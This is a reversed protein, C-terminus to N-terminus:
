FPLAGQIPFSGGSGEAELRLLIKKLPLGGGFGGLDGKALVRHCPVILPIPNAGCAVGVARVAGLDDLERAVDGYTRTEGYPIAVLEQWVRKQFETGRAEIPVSFDKLKGELFAEVEERALQCLHAGPHQPNLECLPDPAHFKIELLHHADAQLRLRGISSDFVLRASPSTPLSGAENSIESDPHTKVPQPM